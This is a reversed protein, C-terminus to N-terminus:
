SQRLNLWSLNDVSRGTGLDPGASGGSEDSVMLSEPYVSSTVARQQQQLSEGGGYGWEDRGGGMPTWVSNVMREDNISDPIRSSLSSATSYVSADDPHSRQDERRAFGVGVGPDQLVLGKSPSRQLNYQSRPPSLSAGPVGLGGAVVGSGSNHLYPNTHLGHPPSYNTTATTADTYASSRATSYSRQPLAVLNTPVSTGSFWDSWGSGRARDKGSSSLNRNMTTSNNASLPQPPIKGSGVIGIGGVAHVTPGSGGTLAQTSSSSSPRLAQKEVHAWSNSNSRNLIGRRPSPLPGDTEQMFSTGRDQFSLRTAGSARREHGAQRHAEQRKRRKLIFLSIALVLVAGLISGLIIFLLQITSLKAGGGGPPAVVTSKTPTPTVTPSVESTPRDLPTVTPSSISGSGTIFSQGTFLETTNVWTNARANFVVVPDGADGGGSIVVMDGNHALSFGDRTSGPALSGNYAPWNEQTLSTTSPAPASSTQTQASSEQRRRKGGTPEKVKTFTVTTPATTMDFVLLVRSGDDGDMLSVAARGRTPLGKELRVGLNRWGGDIEFVKLNTNARDGGVVLAGGKEWPLVLPALLPDAAPISTIEFPASTKILYTNASPTSTDPWRTGSFIILQQSTELYTAGHNTLNFAVPVPLAITEWRKGIFSWRQVGGFGAEPVASPDSTTGGIVYLAEQPTNRHAHVCQAGSTGIGSPLVQWKEDRALRLSQFATASYTYLTENFIASCHHGLPREPVPVSM